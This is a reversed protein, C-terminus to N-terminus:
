TQLLLLLLLILIIVSKLNLNVNIYIFIHLGILIITFGITTVLPVFFRGPLLCCVTPCFSNVVGLRFQISSYLSIRHVLRMKLGPISVAALLDTVM